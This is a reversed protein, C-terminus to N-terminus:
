RRETIGGWKDDLAEIKPNGTGNLTVSYSPIEKASATIVIDDIILSGPIM